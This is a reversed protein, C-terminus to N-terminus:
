LAGFLPLAPLAEREPSDRRVELTGAAGPRLLEDQPRAGTLWDRWVERALVVAQRDHYPAMDPGPETTLLTFRESAGDATEYARWLGALCFWPRGAETFRWRTKPHRAGTFEFFATAPVLCRGQEFRRGESRFNTVPGAKPRDAIFGWRMATLEAGDGFGRVVPAMDTPRVAELPQLNPAAHRDPKLIPPQHQGFADLLDRFTTKNEFLNCM